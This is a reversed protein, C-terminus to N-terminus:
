TSIFKSSGDSGEHMIGITPDYGESIAKIRNRKRARCLRLEIATSRLNLTQQGCDAGNSSASIIPLSIVSKAGYM